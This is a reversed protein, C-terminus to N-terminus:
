RNKTSILLDQAVADASHAILFTLTVGPLFEEMKKTLEKKAEDTLKPKKNSLEKVADCYALLYRKQSECLDISGPKGHGPYFITIDRLLDRAKELNKLWESIHNDAIYSHTGNFILDGIFAVKPENEIIWISNADSDGGPGIDHVRYTLGDFVIRERDKILRNPYTWKDIWEQKYFPGWQLRKPEETSRMLKEISELAVVPIEPSNVLNTTGAVHDPHAHTLLIALLPKNLAEATAKLSKSESSTLTSDIAVIGNQTEVLYANAFIGIEGSTHVHIKPLSKDQNNSTTM